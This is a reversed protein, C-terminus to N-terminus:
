INYIVIYWGNLFKIDKINFPTEELLEQMDIIEKFVLIKNVIKM